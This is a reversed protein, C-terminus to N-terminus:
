PKPQRVRVSARLVFAHGLDHCGGEYYTQTESLGRIGTVQIWEAGAAHGQLTIPAAVRAWRGDGPGAFVDTGAPIVVELDTPVGSCGCGGGGWGYGRGGGGEEDLADRAAWGTLRAGDDMSMSVRLLGDGSGTVRIAEAKVRISGEGTPSRLLSMAGDKPSLWKATSREPDTKAQAPPFPAETLALASCPVAIREVTVSDALQVDGLLEGGKPEIAVVRTHSGSQVMGAALPVGARMGLTELRALGYFHLPGGVEIASGAEPAAPIASVPLGDVRVVFPLAGIPRITVWEV